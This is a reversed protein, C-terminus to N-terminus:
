GQEGHEFRASRAAEVAQRLIEQPAPFFDWFLFTKLEEHYSSTILFTSEKPTGDCLLVQKLGYRCLEYAKEFDKKETTPKVEAFCGGKLKPLWFDPLYWGSPLKYGEVEYEWKIKIADFFVAWRAELRSRFRYGKYRTEIAKLM